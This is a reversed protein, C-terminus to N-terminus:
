WRNTHVRAENFRNAPEKEENPYGLAVLAFPTINEPIGFIQRIGAQRNVIPHIGLWVAGLGMGHAAILINQVAASCDQVWYGKYKELSEDGCVLIAVPAEKLMVAHPHYTPVQSLLNKDKIVIYHWPQQNGASPASMAAKLLDNLQGESVEQGTYKRISRRSLITQLVNMFVDGKWINLPKIYVFLASYRSINLWINTYFAFTSKFLLM